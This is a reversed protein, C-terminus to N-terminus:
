AVAPADQPAADIVSEGLTPADIVPDIRANLAAFDADSMHTADIVTSIEIDPIKAADEVSVPTVASLPEVALEESSTAKAMTSLFADAAHRMIAVSKIEAEFVDKFQQVLDAVQSTPVYKTEALAAMYGDLYNEFQERNM